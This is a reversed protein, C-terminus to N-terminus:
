DGPTFARKMDLGFEPKAVPGAVRIPLKSGGGERSFLPQAIRALVSKFGTTMEALTADLLVDGNFDLTERRLNYTGALQVVAGPVAFQLRKFRLQGDRLVFSGSFNSVVNADPGEPKGRGRKSLENIRRQVKVDTFTARALAFTGDLQLRDIVAADGAPLLFSTDLDMRGTMLPRKSKVALKLIDELRGDDIRVDLTTRRGKVDEARVVSGKALIVTEVLRAEVQQLFTDGNTGDVVAHFRTKLRVPQSAVDIAFDPTDTEGKVEIRELVGSYAGTSSLTGGIGKITDLNAKEFVYRGRLPTRRPDEKQWPGFHGQTTIEGHPTPNTLTAHFLAGDAQGFGGMVLDHIEFVRPLKGPDRPVIELRAERSVIQDISVGGGASTTGSFSSREVGGPPIRVELRDLEVTRVRVPSSFLGFMGASASFSGITLLPPVDTRGNHRLTLGAGWVAPRPFVSVQLADLSVESQFRQNLASVAQDRVYPTLRTAMSLLVAVGILLLALAVLLERRHRDIFSRLRSRRAILTTM